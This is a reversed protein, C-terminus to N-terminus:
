RNRLLEVFADFRTQVTARAYHSADLPDCDLVLTPIGARRLLDVKATTEANLVRCGWPLFIVAGDVDWEQGLSTALASRRALSGLTPLALCRRALALLLDELSSDESVEARTRYLWSFIEAVFTVGRAELGEFLSRDHLPFYHGASLLRIPPDATPPVEPVAALACNLDAYFALTREQDGLFNFMPYYFLFATTGGIPVHPRKRLELFACFADYAANSRQVVPLLREATLRNGSLEELTSVLAELESVVFSLASETDTVSPLHFSALPVGRARAAAEFAKGQAECLTFMTTCVLDPEPLEGVLGAGLANTCFSCSDTPAGACYARDLYRDSPSLSCVFASYVEPMYPIVDLAYFLEVVSPMNVYALKQVDRDRTRCQTHHDSIFRLLEHAAPAWATTAPPHASSM